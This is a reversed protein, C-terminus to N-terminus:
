TRVPSIFAKMFIFCNFALLIFLPSHGDYKRLSALRVLLGHCTHVSLVLRIFFGSMLSGPVLSAVCYKLRLMMEPNTVASKTKEQFYIEFFKDLRMKLELVLKLAM